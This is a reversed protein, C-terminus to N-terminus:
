RSTRVAVAEIEVLQDPHGLMAVGLLTSPPDHDGFAARVEHWADVLADRDQAVVHVTTRAVGDLSSGAAELAVRLNRMALAAQGAVDGRPMVQGHEDLPCAGATLVMTGGVVAAHAYPAPALSPARV